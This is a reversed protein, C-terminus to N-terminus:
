RAGSQFIEKLAEPNCFVNAVTQNPQCRSRIKNKNIKKQNFGDTNDVSAKKFNFVCKLVDTVRASKHHMMKILPRNLDSNKEM